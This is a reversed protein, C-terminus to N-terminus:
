RYWNMRDGFKYIIQSPYCNSSKLKELVEAGFFSPHVWWDEFSSNEIKNDPQEVYVDACLLLYGFHELLERQEKRYLDGFRYYDHEITIVKFKFRDLPLKQLISFSLEDIDLSLYDPDQPFNNTDLLLNYDITTADKNLYYCNKRTNYTNNWKSDYEICIGKLGLLDLYFTNNHKMSHASGIDLYFGKRPFGLINAVFADQKANSFYM